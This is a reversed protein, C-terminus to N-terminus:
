VTEQAKGQSSKEEHKATSLMGRKAEKILSKFERGFMDIWLKREFKDTKFDMLLRQYSSGNNSRKMLSAITNGNSSPLNSTKQSAEWSALQRKLESESVPAIADCFNSNWLMEYHNYRVMMNQRSGNTPLGLSSLKHKIQNLSMSTFNTKPLRQRDGSNASFMYRNVHFNEKEYPSTTKQKKSLIDSIKSSSADKLSASKKPAKGLSQLTLCEDLHTRELVKLPFLEQCIPCQALNETTKSCKKVNNFTSTNKPVRKNVKNPEVIDQRFQIRKKNTAVIQIDDDGDSESTIDIPPADVTLTAEKLSELLQKRSSKYSEVIENVLFESRLSSERLENLCLPCKPEKTLYERICLSCFTHGCPTLVPIKLFDKCIHCRLLTDLQGLQPLSTKSFESADTVNQNM